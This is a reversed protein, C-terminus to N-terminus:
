GVETNNGSDRAQMDSDVDVLRSLDREGGWQIQPEDAQWTIQICTGLGSADRQVIEVILIHSSRFVARLWAKAGVQGPSRLAFEHEEPNGSNARTGHPEALPSVRQFSTSIPSDDTGSLHDRGEPPLTAWTTTDGPHDHRGPPRTAWTTTDGLDDFQESTTTGDRWV